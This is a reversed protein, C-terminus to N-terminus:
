NPNDCGGFKRGTLDITMKGVITVYQDTRTYIDTGECTIEGKGTTAPPGAALSPPSDLLCLVFLASRRPYPAALVKGGSEHASRSM